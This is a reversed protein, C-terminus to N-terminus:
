KEQIIYADFQIFEFATKKKEKQSIITYIKLMPSCHILNLVHDINKQLTKSAVNKTKYQM